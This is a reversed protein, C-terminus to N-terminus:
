GNIDQKRQYAEVESNGNIINRSIDLPYGSFSGGVYTGNIRKYPENKINLWTQADIPYKFSTRSIFANNENILKYIGGFAGTQVIELRGGAHVISTPETLLDVTVFCRTGAPMYLTTGGLIQRYNFFYYLNNLSVNPNVDIVVDPTQIVGSSDVHEIRTQYYSGTIYFDVDVTVVMDTPAEFYGINETFSPSTNIVGIQYDGGTDFNGGTSDNDPSFNNQNPSTSTTQDVTLTARVLPNLTELLQTISFPYTSSWRESVYRNTYYENYYFDSSLPAPTVVATDTNNCHIIFVDEDYADNATGGNSVPQVDQIINTDTILKQLELNLENDINCQGQLFFQEQQFGNYSLRILYGFGDAVKASGMKISAYFQERNTEQTLDNINELTVSSGLQRFYEKPEIRLTNGEVVGALNHLKNMDNFFDQYSIIPLLEAAPVRVEGGVVIIDYCADSTPNNYDFYDSVFTMEGNTMFQILENFVDFIRYGRVTIDTLGDDSPLTVDTFVSTIPELDKSLAVGIAVEIGKNNDIQQIYKDSVITVSAECKSLNWSIDNLFIVGDYTEGNCDDSIVVDVVNCVSENFLKRLLRYGDRVFTLEGDLKNLYMSLEENFYIRETLGDLGIPNDVTQGDIAVELM